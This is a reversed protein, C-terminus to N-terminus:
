LPNQPSGGEGLETGTTRGAAGRPAGLTLLPLRCDDPVPWWTLVTLMTGSLSTGEVTYLLWSISLFNFIYINAYDLSSLSNSYTNILYLNPHKQYTDSAILSM